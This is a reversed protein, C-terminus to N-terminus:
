HEANSLLLSQLFCYTCAGVQQPGASPLDDLLSLLDAEHVATGTAELAGIFERESPLLFLLAEGARGMRATRGVRHVYRHIHDTVSDQSADYMPLALRIFPM